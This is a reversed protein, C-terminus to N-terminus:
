DKVMERGTQVLFCRLVDPRSVIGVVKGERTVPLRRFTVKALRKCIEELSDEEDLNVAPRTMFDEARKQKGAEPGSFVALLDKETIVGVLTMDEDVVPCGAIENALLLEIVEEVPAGKRVTVAPRTMIDKAKLM